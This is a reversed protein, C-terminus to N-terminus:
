GACRRRASGRRSPCRWSWRRGRAPRGAAAAAVDDVAAREAAVRSAGHAAVARVAGRLSGVRRATSAAPATRRAAARPSRPGRARCARSRARAARPRAGSRAPGAPRPAVAADEVDVLDVQQGVVEDVHQEVGRRHADVVTSRSPMENLAGPAREQQDARHVGLLAVQPRLQEVAEAQRHLDDAAARRRLAASTTRRRIANSASGPASRRGSPLGLLLALARRMAAARSSSGRTCSSSASSSSILWSQQRTRPRRGARRCRSTCSPACAPRRRRGSRPSRPRRAGRRRAPAAAGGAGGARGTARSRVRLLQVPGDLLLQRWRRGVIPSPEDSSLRRASRGRTRCRGASGAAFCRRRWAQGPRGAAAGAPPGLGVLGARAAVVDAGRGSPLAWRGRRRRWAGRAAAAATARSRCGSRFRRRVLGSSAVDALLDALGLDALRIRNATSALPEIAAISRMAAVLPAM